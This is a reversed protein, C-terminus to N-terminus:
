KSNNETVTVTAPDATNVKVDGSGIIAITNGNYQSPDLVIHRAPNLRLSTHIAVSVPHNVIIFVIPNYLTNM